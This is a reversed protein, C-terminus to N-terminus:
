SKIKEFAKAFTGMWEALRLTELTIQRTQLSDFSSLSELFSNDDKATKLAPYFHILWKILDKFLTEDHQQVFMISAGLGNARILLYFKKALKLYDVNANSIIHYAYAERSQFAQNEDMQSPLIAQRPNEGTTASLHFSPLLSEIQNISIVTNNEDIELEYELTDALDDFSLNEFNWNHKFMKVSNEEGSETKYDLRKHFGGTFSSIPKAKIKM